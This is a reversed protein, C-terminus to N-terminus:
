AEPNQYHQAQTRYLHAYRGNLRVLAQHSGQESIRGDELVFIQDALQVTSLRHSILLATRGHALQRFRDITEQEAIVDLASTPEDLVLVSAQERYFARALALKQWQGLSLDRGDEFATNLMTEVGHPMKELLTDFGSQELANRVRQEDFQEISSIAINEKLSLGYRVFEQFVVSILGRYAVPDFHRIDVGNLRIVGEDPDYLRCLLKVLTSKGAGNDGVLAATSGPLIKFSLGNLISERTSAYAFHVNEFEITYPTEVPLPQAPEMVQIRSRYDLFEYLSSIYLNDEYLRVLSSMVGNLLAQAKQFGQFAIVLSGITLTGRVTEGAVYLVVTYVAAHSLLQAANEWGFNQRIKAFRQHQLAQQLQRFREIFFPGFQFLRLEKMADPGTLLWHIYQSRRTTSTTTVNWRYLRRASFLQALAVPLSAIVLLPLIGWFISVLFVIIGALSISNMMMELLTSVIKQPRVSAQYLARYATDQTAPNEFHSLDLEISHRLIMMEVYHTTLEAQRAVLLASLSRLFHDLYNVAGLTIVIQFVLGPDTSGPGRGTLQTITDITLKYIYLSFVTVLSSAAMVFLNAFFWRGSSSLVLIVARWLNRFFEKSLYRKINM